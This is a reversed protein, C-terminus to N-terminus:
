EPEASCMSPMCMVREQLSADWDQGGIDKFMLVTSDVSSGLRMACNTLAPMLANLLDLVMGAAPSPDTSSSSSSSDAAQRHEQGASQQHRTPMDKAQKLLQLMATCLLKGLADHLNRNSSLARTIREAREVWMDELEAVPTDNIHQLWQSAQQLNRPLGAAEAAAGAAAAVRTSRM